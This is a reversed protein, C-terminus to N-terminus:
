PRRSFRGGHGSWRVAERRGEGITVGNHALEAGAAHGGHVEGLVYLVVPLHRELDQTGFEGRDQATLPEELLDLNRGVQLVRVDQREVVAAADRPRLATVLEEEVDHGVDFALRQPLLHRTLLLQAHVLRDRDRSVHGIREMERMLAPHDVAVDFGLVDQELLALGHDRVEPDRERDGLRASGAEGLGPEREAGRV